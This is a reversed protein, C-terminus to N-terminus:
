LSTTQPRDTGAPWACAGLRMAPPIPKARRGLVHRAVFEGLAPGLKYGHGSGGGVLWVNSHAPHRDIVLNSDPTREYQCVRTEIIPADALAPLRLRLYSRAAEISEPLVTRAGRTPDFRPGSWDDAVKVGRAEASPLGYFHQGPDLWVPMAPPTYKTTGGAPPGFYFVDQQTVLIRNCLLDPFMQPLWPGCAMVFHEAALSGGGALRLTRCVGAPTQVAPPEVQATLIRGGANRVAAAVAMTALRARLYGAKPEHYAFAIERYDFQPFRRALARGDFRAVPVRLKKLAAQSARAYDNEQACLWLVGSPVFLQQRVSREFQKWQALARWAWASYFARAGYGCRIVRSEDCSTGRLHGAGWADVLTVRAGLELLQLAIWAGFVGSGIVAVEPRATRSKTRQKKRRAPM